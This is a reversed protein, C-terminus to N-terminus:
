SSKKTARRGFTKKAPAKKAPEKKAPEKKAPAAAKAEAEELAAVLSVVADCLLPVVNPAHYKSRENRYGGRACGALNLAEQKDM